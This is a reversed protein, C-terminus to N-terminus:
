ENTKEEKKFLRLIFGWLVGAVVIFPLVMLVEGAVEELGMDVGIHELYSLSVGVSICLILLCVVAIEIM